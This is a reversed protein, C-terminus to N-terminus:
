EKTWSYIKGVEMPNLRMKYKYLGESGLSGGDNVIKNGYHIYIWNYFLVRCYDSLGRINPLVFCYRFNIFKWNEDWVAMGWIKYGLPNVFYLRNEGHFMYKILVEPDYWEKDSVSSMWEDSFDIKRKESINESSVSILISRIDEQAWKINKRSMKWKGGELNRFSSPEYLFQYDLFEGSDLSSYGAWYGDQTIVPVDASCLVSPLMLNGREDTVRCVTKRERPFIQREIIERWGAKQFYEESCWFNPPCDIRKLLELYM